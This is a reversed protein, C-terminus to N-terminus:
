WDRTRDGGGGDCHRVVDFVQVRDLGHVVGDVALALAAAQHNDAEAAAPVGVARAEVGGECGGRIPDAGDRRQVGDVDVLHLAEVGHVLQVQGAGEHEEVPVPVDVNAAEAAPVVDVPGRVAAAAAAPEGAEDLRHV